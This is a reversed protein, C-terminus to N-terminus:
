PKLLLSSAKSLPADRTDGHHPCDEAQNKDAEKKYEFTFCQLTVGAYTRTIFVTVSLSSLLTWPMWIRARDNSSLCTANHLGTREPGEALPCLPISGFCRSHANLAAIWVVAICLAQSWPDGGGRAVEREKDKCQQPVWQQLQCSPPILIRFCCTQRRLFPPNYKRIVKSWTSWTVGHGNRRLCFATPLGSLHGSWLQGM